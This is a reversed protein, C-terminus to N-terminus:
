FISSPRARLGVYAPLMTQRGLDHGVGAVRCHDFCFRSSHCCADGRAQARGRRRHNRRAKAALRQVRKGTFRQRTPQQLFVAGHRRSLQEPDIEQQDQHRQANGAAEPQIARRQHQWESACLQEHHSQGHRDVRPVGGIPFVNPQIALSQRHQVGVTSANLMGRLAPTVAYSMSVPCLVSPETETFLMFGAAREIHGGPGEAWPAGHLRHRLASGLLVHYSPHFEVQDSRRGVRDHTHLLPAHTNALRAHHVMEASGLEAGMADFRTTDFSPHFARVADQLPRNIRWLNVDELPTSQNRVEHTPTM